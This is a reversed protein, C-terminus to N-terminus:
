LICRDLRNLPWFHGLIHLITDDSRGLLCAQLEPVILVLSRLPHLHNHLGKQLAVPDDYDTRDILLGMVDVVCGNDHLTLICVHLIIESELVLGTAVVDKPDCSIDENIM